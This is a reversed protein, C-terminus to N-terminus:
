NNIRAALRVEFETGEGPKSRCYITGGHLEIIRKVLTLGLGNGETSRSINVQYFKDFVRSIAEEPIGCGSDKITVVANKEDQKLTIDVAGGEPTFKIANDMLNIWVQSLLEYDGRCVVDQMDASFALGKKEWKPELLLICYRIQEGLDFDTIESLITQTEVKSLELVNSAMVTLRKSESIVIDLYEDREEDTLDGYKLIEAFGKISTIPSKFEHSFNNIFDTRLLEIGGLEEAMSNFSDGLRKLEPPHSIDLRASFDGDALKDMAAIIKRTPRLSAPSVMFSIATGILVSTLLIALMLVFLGRHAIQYIVGSSILAYGIAAVILATILFTCFVSLSFRLTLGLKNLLKDKM